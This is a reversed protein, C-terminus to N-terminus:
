GRLIVMLKGSVGLKRSVILNSAIIHMVVRVGSFVRQVKLNKKGM